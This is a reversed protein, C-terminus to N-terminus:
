RDPDVILQLDEQGQQLEWLLLGLGDLLRQGQRRLDRLLVSVAFEDDPHPFLFVNAARSEIAGPVDATM